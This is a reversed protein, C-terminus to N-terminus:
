AIQKRARQRVYASTTSGAERDEYFYWQPSVCKMKEHVQSRMYKLREEDITLKAYARGDDSNVETELMIYVGDATEEDRPYDRELRILEGQPEAAEALQDM